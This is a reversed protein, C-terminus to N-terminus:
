KGSSFRPAFPPKLALHFTNGCGDCAIEGLRRDPTLVARGMVTITEGCRPCVFAFVLIDASTHSETPEAM